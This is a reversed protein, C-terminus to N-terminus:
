RAHAPTTPAQEPGAGAAERTARDGLAAVLAVLSLFLIGLRAHLVLNNTFDQVMFALTGVLLGQYVIAHRSRTLVRRHRLLLRLVGALLLAFFVVGFIGKQVGVTLMSAHAVAGAIGFPTDRYATSSLFAEVMRRESGFGFWFHDRLMAVGASYTLLRDVVREGIRTLKEQLFPNAALVGAFVVLFVGAGAFLRRLPVRLLFVGAVTGAVLLALVSGLTLSLLLAVIELSFALLLTGRWGGERPALALALTPVSTLAMFAGLYNFTFFTGSARNYGYLQYYDLGLSYTVISYLAELFAGVLIAGLMVRWGRETGAYLYVLVSVLGFAVIKLLASLIDAPASVGNAVLSLVSVVALGGLPALVPSLARVGEPFRRPSAGITALGVALAGLTLTEGGNLGGVVDGTSVLPLVLLYFALGYLPRALFVLLAPLAVALGVVAAEQRGPGLRGLAVVAWAVLVVALAVAARRVLVSESAPGPRPGANTRELAGASM